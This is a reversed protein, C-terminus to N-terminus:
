RTGGMYKGGMTEWGFAGSDQQAEVERTLLEILERRNNQNNSSGGSRISATDSGSM